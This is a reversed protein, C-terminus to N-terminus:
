DNGYDAIEGYGGSDQKFTYKTIREATKYGITEDIISILDGITFDEGFTYRSTRLDIEGSFTREITKDALANKGEEKQWGKYLESDPTTTQETGDKDTYKTSLNSQITTERRDIGRGGRDYTEIYTETAGKDNFTSVIQCFTKDSASSEYYDASVLNDLSQSFIVRDGVNRGKIAKYTMGHGDYTVISGCGNAKLLAQVFVWLDGITAQTSEIVMGTLASVDVSFGAIKRAPVASKGLNGDVLQYVAEDLKTPLDFTNMIIRNHLLWKAEYGKVDIMKAGDASFKYEVSKIVWLYPRNPIRVYNGNKLAEINHTSAIAYIEFQGIDYYSLEFWCQSPEVVAFAELSYKGIVEIYPIM